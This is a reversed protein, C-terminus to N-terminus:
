GCTETGSAIAAEIMKRYYGGSCPEIRRIEFGTQVNSGAARKKYGIRICLFQITRSIM